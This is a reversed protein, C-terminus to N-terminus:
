GTIGGNLVAEIEQYSTNLELWLATQSATFPVYTYELCQGAFPTPTIVPTPTPTKAGTSSKALDCLTADYYTSGDAGVYLTDATWVNPFFVFKVVGGSTIQLSDGDHVEVQTGSIKIAVAGYNSDDGDIWGNNNDCITGYSTSDSSRIINYQM